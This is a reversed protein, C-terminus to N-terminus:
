RKHGGGRFGGGRRGRNGGRGGRGRGRGGGRRAGRGQTTNTDTKGFYNLHNPITTNNLNSHMKDNMGTQIDKFKRKKSGQGKNNKNLKQNYSDKYRLLIEFARRQRENFQFQNQTQKRTHKIKKNKQKHM